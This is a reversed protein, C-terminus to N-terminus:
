AGTGDTTRVYFAYVPANIEFENVYNLDTVYKTFQRTGSRSNAFIVLNNNAGISPIVVAKEIM